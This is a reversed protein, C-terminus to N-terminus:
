LSRVSILMHWRVYLSSFCYYSNSIWGGIASLLFFRCFALRIMFWLRSRKRSLHYVCVGWFNQEWRVWEKYHRNHMAKESCTALQDPAGEASPGWWVRGRDRSKSAWSGLLSRQKGRHLRTGLWIQTFSLQCRCSFWRRCWSGLSSTTGPDKHRSFLSRMWRTDLLAKLSSPTSQRPASELSEFWSFVRSDLHPRLCPTM